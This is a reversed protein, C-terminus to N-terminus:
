LLDSRGSGSLQRLLLDDLQPYAYQFALLETKGLARWRASMTDGARILGGGCRFQIGADSTATVM